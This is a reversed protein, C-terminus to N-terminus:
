SEPPDPRRRRRRRRRPASERREEPAASWAAAPVAPGVPPPTALPLSTAALAVRRTAAAAARRARSGGRARPALEGGGLITYELITYKRYEGPSPRIKQDSDLRRLALDLITCFFATQTLLNCLKRLPIGKM